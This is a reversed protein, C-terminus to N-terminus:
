EALRYTQGFGQAVMRGTGCFESYDALLNLTHTCAAFPADDAFEGTPTKPRVVAYAVEGVCGVHTVRRHSEKLVRQATRINMDAVEVCQRLFREWKELDLEHEPPAFANWREAYGKFIRVPDPLVQRLGASTFHTPSSFRLRVQRASTASQVFADYTRDAVVEPEQALTVPNHDIELAYGSADIGQCLRVFVANDPWLMTVFYDTQIPQTIPGPAVARRQRPNPQAPAVTMAAFNSHARNHLADAVEAGGYTHRIWEFIQRHLAMTCDAPPRPHQSLDLSLLLAHPM